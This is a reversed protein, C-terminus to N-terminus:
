FVCSCFLVASFSQQLYFPLESTDVVCTMGQLLTHDCRIDTDYFMVSEFPLDRLTSKKPLFRIPPLEKHTTPPLSSQHLQLHDDELATCRVTM